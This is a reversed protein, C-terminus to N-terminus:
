ERRQRITQVSKVEEKDKRIDIITKIAKEIDERSRGETNEKM